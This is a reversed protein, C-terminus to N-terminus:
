FSPPLSQGRPSRRVRLPPTRHRRSIRSHQIGRASAQRRQRQDQHQGRRDQQQRAEIDGLRAVPMDRVGDLEGQPRGIGGVRRHHHELIPAHPIGLLTRAVGGGHRHLGAPEVPRGHSLRRLPDKDVDVLPERDVADFELVAVAGQAIEVEQHRLDLHHRQRQELLGLHADGIEALALVPAQQPELDGGAREVRAVPRLRFRRGTWSARGPSEIPRWPRGRRGEKRAM